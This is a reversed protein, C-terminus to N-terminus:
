SGKFQLNIEKMSKKSSFSESNTTLDQEAWNEERKGQPQLLM